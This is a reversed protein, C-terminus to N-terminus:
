RQPRRPLPRTRVLRRWREIEDKSRAPLPRARMAEIPMTLRTGFPPRSPSLSPASM